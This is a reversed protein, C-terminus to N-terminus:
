VYCLCGTQMEEVANKIAKQNSTNEIYFMTTDNSEKIKWDSESNWVNAKNKLKNDQLMWLQDSFDIKKQTDLQSKTM